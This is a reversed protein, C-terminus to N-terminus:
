VNQVVTERCSQRGYQAPRPEAGHGTMDQEAIVATLADTFLGDLGHSARHHGAGCADDHGVLGGEDIPGPIRDHGRELRERALRGRFPALDSSCVDSSWDSIRM